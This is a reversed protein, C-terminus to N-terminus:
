IPDLTGNRIYSVIIEGEFTLIDSTKKLPEKPALLSSDYHVSLSVM